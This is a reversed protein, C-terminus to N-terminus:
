KSFLQERKGKKEMKKFGLEAITGCVYGGATAFV